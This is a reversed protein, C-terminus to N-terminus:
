KEDVPENGAQTEIARFELRDECLIVHDAGKSLQCSALLTLIAAKAESLEHFDTIRFGRSNHQAGASKDSSSSQSVQLDKKYVEFWATLVSGPLLKSIECINGTIYWGNRPPDDLSIEWAPQLPTGFPAIAVDNPNRKFDDSELFERRKDIDDLELGGYDINLQGRRVTLEVFELFAPICALEVGIPQSEGPGRQDASLTISALKDNISVPLATRHATTVPTAKDGPAREECSAHRKLYKEIFADATDRRKNNPTYPGAAPDIWEAWNLPFDCCNALKTQVISTMGDGEDADTFCGDLTKRPIGSRDYFETKNKYGGVRQPVCGTLLFDVKRELDYILQRKTPDLEM